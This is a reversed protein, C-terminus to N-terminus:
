RLAVRLFSALPDPHPRGVDCPLADLPPLVADGVRHESPPQETSWTPGPRLTTPHLDARQERPDAAEVQGDLGDRAPCDHPVGLAVREGGCHERFVPRLRLEVLVHAVNDLWRSDIDHAAPERALVDGSRPLPPAKFARAGAEPSLEMSDNAVHSGVEDVHLVDCGESATPEVADKPVKGRAPEICLPRSECRGGNSCRMPPVPQEKQGVAM